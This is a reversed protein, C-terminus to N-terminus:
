RYNEQPAPRNNLIAEIREVAEPTLRPVVELAGLNDKVQEVKSAGTIM